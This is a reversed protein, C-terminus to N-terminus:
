HDDRQPGSTACRRVEFPRQEDISPCEDALLDNWDVRVLVVQIM